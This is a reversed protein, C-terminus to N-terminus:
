EGPMCLCFPHGAPDAYVPCSGGQPPLRVAGLREALQRAAHGDEFRLDLHMQQPFAADPWRPAVYHAVHQFGLMPFEGVEKAIVVREPRDEVRIPMSLLEQYFGALSRPSFCDIVIRGLIAPAGGVSGHPYLCFPHGIPDAYTRHDGADHLATAGNSVAVSEAENLDGVLLDLHLQQPYTPDPWRPALYGGRSEGFAFVPRRWRDAGLLSAYFAALEARRDSPCAIVVNAIGEFVTADLGVGDIRGEADLRITVVAQGQEGSVFFRAATDSLPVTEAIRRPTGALEELVPGWFERLYEEVDWRRMRESKLARIRAADGRELLDLVEAARAVVDTM